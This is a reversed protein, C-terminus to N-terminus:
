GLIFAAFVKRRGQIFATNRSDGSFAGGGGQPASKNRAPKRRLDSRHLARERRFPLRVFDSRRGKGFLVLQFIPASCGPNGPFIPPIKKERAPSTMKRALRFFFYAPPFM